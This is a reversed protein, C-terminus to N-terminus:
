KGELKNVYELSGLRFRFAVGTFKELKWEQKCVFGLNRHSADSNVFNRQLQFAIRLQNFNLIHTSDVAAKPQALTKKLQANVDLECIILSYILFLIVRVM